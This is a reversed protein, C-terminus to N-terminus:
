YSNLSTISKISLSYATVYKVFAQAKAMQRQGLLRSAMDYIGKLSQHTM